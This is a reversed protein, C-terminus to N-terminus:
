GFTLAAHALLYRTYSGAPEQGVKLSYPGNYVAGRLPDADAYLAELCALDYFCNLM